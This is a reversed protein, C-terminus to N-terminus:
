GSVTKGGSVNEVGSSVSGIVDQPGYMSNLLHSYKKSIVKRKIKLTPTLEGEEQTLEQTLLRFKKVQEFNPLDQQLKDLHRQLKEIIQENEVLQETSTYDINRKKAYRELNEFNPVILAALYKRQDGFVVVQSIYKDSKLLSEINQPAVNKGGSTVIIDKKRDTIRLMGQRDIEGIDGTYFWGNQFSEATEEPRRFYGSSVNPGQALIEGDEAIKISVSPLPPGVTGFKLQRSNNVSLVPATETLGYGEYITIGLAYFFEGIEKTLPAGGSVFYRLKGGVQQQIKGFVLAEAAQHKLKLLLSKQSDSFKYRQGVALAWDFLKRKLWSGQSVSQKVAVYMKEYLRPVSIVLEPRVLKLEEPVTQFSEAYTIRVGAYLMLYYGITRELVHSLPLFSLCTDTPRIDMIEFCDELNALFNRHSLMVGKPDGTTGSTYVLSMLDDPKLSKTRKDLEDSRAHNEKGLELLEDFTMIDEDSSGQWGNIVMIKKLRPMKHRMSIVEQLKEKCGLIIIEAECHNFIYSIQTGKNTHYIPVNVAGAAIIGLDAMAWEPCNGSMLCVRDKPRVGLAILGLAADTVKDGLQKWSIDRYVGDVRQSLAAKDGFREVREFFMNVITKGM